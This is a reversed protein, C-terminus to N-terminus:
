SVACLRFYKMAWLWRIVQKRSIRPGDMYHHKHYTSYLLFLKQIKTMNTPTPNPPRNPRRHPGQHPGGHPGEGSGEGSGERPGERSRDRSGERSEERPGGRSGGRLGGRPGGRPTPTPGLRRCNNRELIIRRVDEDIDDIIDHLEEDM